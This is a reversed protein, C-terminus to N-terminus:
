TSERPRIAMATFWPSKELFYPMAGGADTKIGRLCYGLPAIKIIDAFILNNCHRAHMGPFIVLDHKLAPIPVLERKEPQM